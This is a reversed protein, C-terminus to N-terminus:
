GFQNMLRSALPGGWAARQAAEDTAKQEQRTQVRRLDQERREILKRVSAVRMERQAVLTRLRELAAQQQDAATQQMQVAQELRQNFSQYCQVIEIAGGRAFQQSWRDHYQGRYARLQEAQQEAAQARAQAQRLQAAAEDREGEAQQLLTRLMTLDSSM